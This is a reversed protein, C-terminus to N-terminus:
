FIFFFFWFLFFCFFCFFLFFFFWLFFFFFCFFHYLFRFNIRYLLIVRVFLLFFFIIFYLRLNTFKQYKEIPDLNKCGNIINKWNKKMSVRKHINSPK